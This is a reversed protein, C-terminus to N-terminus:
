EINKQTHYDRCSQVLSRAARPNSGFHLHVYSGLTQRILYGEQGGPGRRSAWDYIKSPYAEQFDQHSNSDQIQSYHFEHGRIRTGVPGLPGAAKLSVERYGLSKLRPLLELTFPFCGTMEYEKGGHDVIASGLYMFGGCEGYIPMGGQSARAVARRMKVNACLKEAFLEPYGGGFYLGSIGSPLERDGIPSFFVLEAGAAELAELNEPYYFCFASDRAVGIRLRDKPGPSGMGGAGGIDKKDVKGKGMAALLAHTDLSEEILDALADVARPDLLHEDDTVLGLHREPIRIEERRQIGGLVPIYGELASKLYEFHSPSGLNNFIVGAISLDPDFEVFGKVLAAASRAMSKGNVVLVVPLDLWKAMQATSGAESTGSYGDYLGMVGEVVALDARSAGHDFTARNYARDLMWGDLNRSPVGTIRGHHGPDIFDPGVKFPAVCFGKRVLWAMIGLSITTKGSGSQTGAIVIGRTEM